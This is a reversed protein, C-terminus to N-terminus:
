TAPEAQLLKHVIGAFEAVTPRDFLERVSVRVGFRARTRAVIRMAALSHGGLDVFSDEFGVEDLKLADEWITRVAIRIDHEM